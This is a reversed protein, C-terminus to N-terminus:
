ALAPRIGANACVLTLTHDGVVIRADCGCDRRANGDRVPRIRADSGMPRVALLEEQKALEPERGQVAYAGRRRNRGPRDAERADPMEDGPEQASTM